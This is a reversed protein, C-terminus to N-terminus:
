PKLNNGPIGFAPSTRAGTTIEDEHTTRHIVFCMCGCTHQAHQAHQFNNARGSRNAKVLKAQSFDARYTAMCAELIVLALLVLASRRDQPQARKFIVKVRLWTSAATGFSTVKM